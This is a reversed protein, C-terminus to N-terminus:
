FQMFAFCILAHLHLNFVDNNLFPIGTRSKKRRQSVNRVSLCSSNSGSASSPLEIDDGIVENCIDELTLKESFRGMKKSVLTKHSSAGVWCRLHHDSISRSLIHLYISADKGPVESPNQFCSDPVGLFSFNLLGM